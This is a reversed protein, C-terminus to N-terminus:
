EHRGTHFDVPYIEVTSRAHPTRIQAPHIPRVGYVVPETEQEIEAM